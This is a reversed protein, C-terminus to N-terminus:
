IPRAAALIRGWCIYLLEQRLAYRASAVSIGCGGCPAFQRCEELVVTRAVRSSCHFHLQGGQCKLPLAM